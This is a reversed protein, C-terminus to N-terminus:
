RLALIGIANVAMHILIPATVSGSIHYAAALCLGAPIYQLFSLALIAPDGVTWNIHVLAFVLTSVAYALIANKQFLSGFVVGRHLCEETIPVLFVTCILTPIYYSRAVAAVSQDNANFYEPMLWLILRGLLQSVLFYVAFLGAATLLSLLTRDLFAKGSRVWFKWFVACVVVFNVAFYTLNLQAGSLAIGLGAFIFNLAYPLCTQCFLLYCWGFIQESRSPLVINKQM